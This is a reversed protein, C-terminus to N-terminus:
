QYKPEVLRLGNGFFCDADYIRWYCPKQIKKHNVNVLQSGGGDGGDSGGGGGGSPAPESSYVTVLNFIGADLRGDRNDPPDTEDGDNENPDLVSNRNLDEGFLLTRDAQKILLLEEVTELPSNKCEYPDALLLYYESEAGGVTLDSDSDRWDVISAAVEAPMDPLEALMDVTATNLNLKSAEDVLGYTQQGEEQYDPRIIWFAGDGVPVAECPMEQETPVEGDLGDVCALVYQVAGSEVASAQQRAAENASCDQEVRMSNALVLVMGALVALVWMTVILVTGARRPGTPRNPPPQTATRSV